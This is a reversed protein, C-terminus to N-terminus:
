GALKRVGASASVAANAVIANASQGVPLLTCRGNPHAPPKLRYTGALSDAVSEGSAEFDFTGERAEQITYVNGELSLCIPCVRQDGATTWEGHVVLNQGAQEYRDLSATSHSNIVETRAITKLRTQSITDIEGNLRRAMERPNVGEALGQAMERRLQDGMEDTVDTLNEFTRQYLQQLQRETVPLEVVAAVDETAEFGVGIQALRGEAQQWGKIYGDRIYPATWHEGNLVKSRTKSDALAEDIQTEIWRRFEERGSLETVFDFRDDEANASLGAGPADQKLHLADTEYGIKRRVRGRLDRVRRKVERIFDERTELTGTPDGSLEANASPALCTSM